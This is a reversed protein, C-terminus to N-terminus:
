PASAGHSFETSHTPLSSTAQGVGGIRHFSFSGGAFIGHGGNGLPTVWDTGLGIANGLVLGNKRELHLGNTANASIVNFRVTVADASVHLGAGRNGNAAMMSSDTGLWCNEVLSFQSSELKLGHGGFGLISLGNFVSDAGDRLVLGNTNVSGGDLVIKRQAWVLGTLIIPGQIVPLATGPKIVPTGAGPIRFRVLDLDASANAANIAERLSTHRKDAVGDDVDDSTNVTIPDIFRRAFVQATSSNVRVRHFIAERGSKSLGGALFVGPNFGDPKDNFLRM